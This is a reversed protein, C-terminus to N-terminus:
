RPVDVSAKVKQSLRQRDSPGNIVTILDVPGILVADIHEDEERRAEIVARLDTERGKVIARGVADGADISRHNEAV